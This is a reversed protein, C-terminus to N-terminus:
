SAQIGPPTPWEIDPAKSTDIRMLLVRYVKWADLEDAEETTATGKSVAYKRWEIEIVAEALLRAKKQEADAINQEDSPRAADIWVARSFVGNNHWRQCLSFRTRRTRILWFM